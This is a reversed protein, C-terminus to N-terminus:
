GKSPEAAKAQETAPKGGAGAPLKVASGPKLSDLRSVIVNAGAQLGDVVEAYGEDENRLGLKVPQAVLKGQEVKYVM